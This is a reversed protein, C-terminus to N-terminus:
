IRSAPLAENLAVEIAEFEIASFDRSFPLGLCTTAAEATGDLSGRTEIESFLPMTHCGEGWWQRSDVGRLALHKALKEVSVNAPTRLIWYPSIHAECTYFSLLDLNHEVQQALRRAARWEEFEIDSQLFTECGIAAAYESLKANAGPTIAMREGGFGFNTWASLKKALNRDRVIAFGGEGVGLVKTAHLSYVEIVRSLGTFEQSYEVPHGVSAAADVILSSLHSYDASVNLSKGWPAVVLANSGAPLDSVRAVHSGPDVDVFRIKRGANSLAIASAVFTWSPLFWDAEGLVVAAGTIMSTASSGVVVQNVDVQFRRAILEVFEALQPGGNTYTRCEDIQALRHEYATYPLLKPRFVPIKATLRFARRSAILPM